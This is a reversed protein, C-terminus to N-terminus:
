LESPIPSQHRIAPPLQFPLPSTGACGLAQHLDLWFQAGITVGLPFLCLVEQDLIPLLGLEIRLNRSLTKENPVDIIFDALVRILTMRFNGQELRVSIAIKFLGNISPIRAIRVV